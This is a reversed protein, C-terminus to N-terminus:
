VVGEDISRSANKEIHMSIGDSSTNGIAGIPALGGCGDVSSLWWWKVLIVKGIM